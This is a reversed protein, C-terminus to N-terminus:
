KLLTALEKAIEPNKRLIRRTKWSMYEIRPLGIAITFSWGYSFDLYCFWKEFRIKLRRGCSVDTIYHLCFILFRCGFSWGKWFLTGDTKLIFPIKFEWKIYRSPVKPNSMDNYKWM